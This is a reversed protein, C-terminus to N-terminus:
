LESPDSVVNAIRLDFVGRDASVLFAKNNIKDKLFFSGEIDGAKGVIFDAKSEDNADLLTIEIREENDFGYAEEDQVSLTSIIEADALEGIMTNINEGGVLKKADGDIWGVQSRGLNLELGDKKLSMSTTNLMEDYSYIAQSKGVPAVIEQQVAFLSVVLIIIGFVFFWRIKKNYM